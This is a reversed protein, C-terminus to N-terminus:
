HADMLPCILDTTSPPKEKLFSMSVAEQEPLYVLKLDTKDPAICGTIFVSETIMQIM